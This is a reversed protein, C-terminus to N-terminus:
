VGFRYLLNVQQMARTGVEEIRKGLHYKM